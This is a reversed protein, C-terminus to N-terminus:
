QKSITTVTVGRDALTKLLVDQLICAEPNPNPLGLKGRSCIGDLTQEIGITRNVSSWGPKGDRVLCTDTNRTCEETLVKNISDTTTQDALIPEVPSAAPAAEPTETAPQASVVPNPNPATGSAEQLTSKLACAKTRDQPDLPGGQVNLGSMCAQNAKDILDQFKEAGIEQRVLKCTEVDGGMCSDPPIGHSAAPAAEPSQATPATAVPSPQTPNPNPATGPTENAAYLIFGVVSLLAILVLKKM